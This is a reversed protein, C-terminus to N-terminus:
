YYCRLKLFFLIVHLWHIIRYCSRSWLIIYILNFFFKFHILLFFCHRYIRGANSKAHLDELILFYFIHICIIGYLNNLFFLPAINCSLYPFCASVANSNSLVLRVAYFIFTEHLSARSFSNFCCTHFSVSM